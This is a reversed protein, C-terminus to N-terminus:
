VLPDFSRLMWGLKNHYDIQGELFNVVGFEREAEAADHAKILQELVTQNDLNLQAMMEKDSIVMTADTITTLTSYHSLSGPAFDGLARIHEAYDDVSEWAANYVDDLFKHYSPFNPGTINWHYNHAKLYFSFVTALCVKMQMILNM